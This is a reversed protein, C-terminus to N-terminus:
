GLPECFYKGECLYKKVKKRNGTAALEFFMKKYKKRFM